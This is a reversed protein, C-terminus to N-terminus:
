FTLSSGNLISMKGAALSLEEMLQEIPKQNREVIEKHHSEIHKRMTSPKRDFFPCYTGNGDMINCARMTLNGKKLVIWQNHSEDIRDSVIFGREKLLDMLYNLFFCFLRLFFCLVKMPLFQSSSFYTKKIALVKNEGVLDLVPQKKTSKAKLYGRFGKIRM